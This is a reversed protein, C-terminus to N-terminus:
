RHVVDSLSFPVTPAVGQPQGDQDPCARANTPCACPGAGVLKVVGHFHNPMIIYEGLAIDPYNQPIEQWVMDVMAGAANLMMNGDVIDGFVSQREHTCITIFYAGTQSYDYGRLRISQRHHKEPDFQM